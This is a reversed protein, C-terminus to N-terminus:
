LYGGAMRRTSIGADDLYGASDFLYGSFSKKSEFGTLHPVFWGAEMVEKDKESGHIDFVAQERHNTGQYEPWRNIWDESPPDSMIWHAAGIHNYVADQIIKLGRAHAANVLKLYSKKEM